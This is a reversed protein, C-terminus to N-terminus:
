VLHVGPTTAKRAAASARGLKAKSKERMMARGIARDFTKKVRQNRSANPTIPNGISVSLGMSTGDDFLAAGQDLVAHVQDEIEPWQPPESGQMISLFVGDGQYTMLMHPCDVVESIADVVETLAIAFEHTQCRAFLGDIDEVKTAFITCADLRRRSLQSLYNGLSFPLILQNLHSIRVPDALDFAHHGPEAVIQDLPDLRPVLDTTETMRRAVRVRTVMEKVDFPKTIYDNAGAAFASEIRKHDTVSTLMLIPTNRYRPLARIRECLTIGDMEPMEVDLLLCDYEVDPDALHNLAAPGNSALTIDPLDAQKFVLPLLDLILPDDDVALLRM